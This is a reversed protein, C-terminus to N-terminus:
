GLFTLLQGFNELPPNRPLMVAYMTTLSKKCGDVLEGIHEAHDQLLVITSRHQPDIWFTNTDSSARELPV